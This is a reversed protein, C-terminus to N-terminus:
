RNLAQDLPTSFAPEFTASETLTTGNKLDLLQIAMIYTDLDRRLTGTVLTDTGHAKLLAITDADVADDGRAARAERRILGLMADRDGESALLRVDGGLATRLHEAFRDSLDRELDGLATTQVSSRLKRFGDLADGFSGYSEGAITVPGSRLVRQEVGAPDGDAAAEAMASALKRDYEAAWDRVQVRAASRGAVVFPEIRVAKGQVLRQHTRAARQALQRALLVTEAQLSPTFTEAAAGIKWDSAAEHYRYLDQALAGSTLNQNWAAVTARDAVRMAQWRVELTRDKELRNLERVEETGFVVYAAGIRDAMWYVDDIGDWSDFGRNAAQLDNVLGDGAVVEQIGLTRLADATERMLREGLATITAGRSQPTRSLAPFVAVIGPTGSHATALDRAFDGLFGPAVPPTGGAAAGSPTAAPGDGPLSEGMPAALTAADGATSSASAMASGGGPPAGRGSEDGVNHVETSETDVGQIPQHPTREPGACAMAAVLPLGAWLLFRHRVNM